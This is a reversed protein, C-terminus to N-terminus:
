TKAKRRRWRGILQGLVYAYMAALVGLAFDETPPWIASFRPSGPRRNM